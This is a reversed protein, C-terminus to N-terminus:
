RELESNSNDDSTTISQLARKGPSYGSKIWDLSSLKDDLLAAACHHSMGGGVACARKRDFALAVYMDNSIFHLYDDQHLQM